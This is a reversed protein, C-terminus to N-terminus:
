ENVILASNAVFAYNENYDVLSWDDNYGIRKITAGAILSGISEYETGPGTYVTAAELLYVYDNCGTLEFGAGYNVGTIREPEPTERIVTGPPPTVVPAATTSVNEGTADFMASPTAMNEASESSTDSIRDLTKIATVAGAVVAAAIVVGLSITLGRRAWEGQCGRQAGLIAFIATTAAIIFIAALLLILILTGFSM